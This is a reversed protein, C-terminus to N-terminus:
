EGKFILGMASKFAINNDFDPAMPMYTEDNINKLDVVAAM